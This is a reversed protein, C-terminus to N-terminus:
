VVQVQRDSRLHSLTRRLKACPSEVFHYLLEAVLVALLFALGGRVVPGTPLHRALLEIIVHHCLYLSYSLAGIRRVLAHNLLRYPAWNPYRIATVFVPYLAIGQLSYQSSGEFSRSTSGLLLSGLLVVISIPLLVSRWMPSRLVESDDTAPNNWVALACGFLISDARADTPFYTLHNSAHLVFVLACRWILIAACCALFLGAMSRGSMRRRRLAVFLVPFILYFHEEVALSWYVGTGAIFGTWGQYAIVYNSYHLAQSLSAGLSPEQRLAHPDAPGLVGAYGLLMAAGLVIYFPPLIRLARRLYFLSFSITGTEEAELRLLTTILYGSLFFFVTVGFQGPV